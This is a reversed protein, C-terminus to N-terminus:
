NEKEKLLRYDLDYYDSLDQLATQYGVRFRKDCGYVYESDHLRRIHKLLDEKDVKNM